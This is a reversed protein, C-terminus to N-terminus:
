ERERVSMVLESGPELSVRTSDGSLVIFVVAVGPKVRAGTTATSGGGATTGMLAGAGETLTTKGPNNTKQIVDGDEDVDAKGQSNVVSKISSEVHSKASHDPAELTDFHL